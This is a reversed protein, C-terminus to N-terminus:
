VHARGIKLGIIAAFEATQVNGLLGRRNEPLPNGTVAALRPQRLFPRAFHRLSRQAVVTDADIVLFLPTTLLGLAANLAAAKGLNRDLRLLHFPPLRDIFPRVAEVTGDTSADDVVLVRYDPYDLGVLGQLTRAITAAENRCPVVITV